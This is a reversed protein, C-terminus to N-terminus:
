TKIWKIDQEHGHRDQEHGQRQRARTKNMDKNKRFINKYIERGMEKFIGGGQM